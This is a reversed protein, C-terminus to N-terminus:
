VCTLMRSNGLFIFSDIAIGIMNLIMKFIMTTGPPPKLIKDRKLKNVINKQYAPEFVERLYLTYNFYGYKASKEVGSNIKDQISKVINTYNDDIYKQEEDKFKKELAIRNEKSQKHIESQNCGM